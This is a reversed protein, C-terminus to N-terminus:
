CAFGKGKIQLPMTPEGASNMAVGHELAFAAAMVSGQMIHLEREVLAKSLPFGTRRIEAPSLQQNALRELYNEDHAAKVWRENAKDPKFFNAETLTGEYLLQQPLLEYKEMPFRHGEPLPHAYLSSWAVKLM